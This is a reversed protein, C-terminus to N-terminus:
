IYILKLDYKIAIPRDGVNIDSPRWDGAQQKGIVSLLSLSGNLLSFAFVTFGFSDSNLEVDRIGACSLKMFDVAYLRRTVSSQCLTIM